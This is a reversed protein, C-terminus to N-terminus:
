NFIVLKNANLEENCYMTGVLDSSVSVIHLLPNPFDSVHTLSISKFDSLRPM